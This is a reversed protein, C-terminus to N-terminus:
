NKGSRRRRKVKVVERRCVGDRHHVYGVMSIIDKKQKGTVTFNITCAESNIYLHSSCNLILSQGPWGGLIM